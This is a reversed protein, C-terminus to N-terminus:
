VERAEEADEFAAMAASFTGAPPNMVSCGEPIDSTYDSIIDEGNGTVLLAGFLEEQDPRNFRLTIYADWEFVENVAARESPTRVYGEGQVALSHVNFGQTAMFRILRRIKRHEDANGYRPKQLGAPAVPEMYEIQEVDDNETSM